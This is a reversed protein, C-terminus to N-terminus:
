SKFQAGFAGCITFKDLGVTLELTYILVSHQWHTFGALVL